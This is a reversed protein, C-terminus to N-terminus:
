EGVKLNLLEIMEKIEEIDRRHDYIVEDNIEKFLNAEFANKGSDIAVHFQDNMFGFYCKGEYRRELDMMKEMLDPTLLYFADHEDEAFVNFRKNFEVSELEIRETKPCNNFMSDPKSNNFFEKESVVLYNSIKKPFSFIMYPGLFLQTVVTAKGTHTINKINVDGREIKVGKYELRVYDDSEYQNGFPVVYSDEIREFEYGNWNFEAKTNFVEEFELKIYNEKFAYKFKAVKKSTIMSLALIVGIALAILYMNFFYILFPVMAIGVIGSIILMKQAEKRLLEIENVKNM